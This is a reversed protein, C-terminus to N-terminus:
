TTVKFNDFSSHVVFIWVQNTASSGPATVGTDESDEKSAMGEEEVAELVVDEARGRCPTSKM